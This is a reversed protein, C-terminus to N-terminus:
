LGCLYMGDSAFEALVYGENGLTRETGRMMGDRLYCQHTTAGIWLWAFDRKGVITYEEAILQRFEVLGCEFYETLREFVAVDGDAARFIGGIIWTAEHKHCAHVRTWAAIIAVRRVVADAGWPLYLSVHVLNRTRQEVADVDLALYCWYRELIDRLSGRAFWAGVNTLTDDLCSLYLGLSVLIVLADVAIGLHALAHNMEEGFGVLSAHIHKAHRHLTEGEGGTGVATDQFDGAGDSVQCAALLYFRHM